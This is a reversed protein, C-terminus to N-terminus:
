DGYRDGGKENMRIVRAEIESLRTLIYDADEPHIRDLALQRRTRARLAELEKLGATKLPLAM